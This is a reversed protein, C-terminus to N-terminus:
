FTHGSARFYVIGFWDVTLELEGWALGHRRLLLVGDEEVWVEADAAGLTEDDVGGNRQLTAPVFDGDERRVAVASMAEVFRAITLVGHADVVM